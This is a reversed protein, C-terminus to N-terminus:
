HSVEGLWLILPESVLAMGWVLLAPLMALWQAFHDPRCERSRAATTPRARDFAIAVVRFVYAASALTGLLVGFAWPWHAPEVFLPQLLVWKALFGGSPPLGVLSGGAVAFAFMAVPMTQTAGRLASVRRSGLTAQMEGAALFMSVKALAHAVVFLWLAVQLEPKQWYLLLGLALSAYGLQAVTSYAVLTKLWPTRVAAWGGALLAVIGSIALLPGAQLGLEPPAVRAWLVWLIFLPGKVVLASLLASVATPAATHAAPLWQHFPWLAAKLMLGLTMLLLALRTTDDVEMVAALLGVDLVGYRGYLLAVGLLYCLSALLSLLLYNLAAGYAKPGSLTVMAVAVLGLLELAVYWNFLDTSLWLAVLTAQLLCSLPWFDTERGNHRGNHSSPSHRSRAAYIGVLLHVLATVVLMLASIPTLELRIALPSDWGGLLLQQSGNDVVQVLAATAAALSAINGALVLGSARSRALLLLLATAAPLLLSVLAPNM